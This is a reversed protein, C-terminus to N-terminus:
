QIGKWLNFASVYHYPITGITDVNSAVIKRSSSIVAPLSNASVSASTFRRCIRRSFSCFLIVAWSCYRSTNFAFGISSSVEPYYRMGRHHITNTNSAVTVDMFLTLKPLPGQAGRAPERQSPAVQPAYRFGVAALPSGHKIAENGRNENDYGHQYYNPAM